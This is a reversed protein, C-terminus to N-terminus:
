LLITIFIRPNALTDLNSVRQDVVIQHIMSIAVDEFLGVQVGQSPILLCQVVEASPTDELCNEAEFTLTFLVSEKDPAM